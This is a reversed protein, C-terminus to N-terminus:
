SSEAQKIPVSEEDPPSEVSAKERRERKRRVHSELMSLVGAWTILLTGLEAYKTWLLGVGSIGFILSLTLMTKSFLPIPMRVWFVGLGGVVALGCLLILLPPINMRRLIGLTDATGEVARTLM